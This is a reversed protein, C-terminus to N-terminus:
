KQSNKTERTSHMHFFFIRKERWFDCWNSNYQFHLSVYFNFKFGTFLKQHLIQFFLQFNHIKGERESAEIVKEAHSIFTSWQSINMEILPNVITVAMRMTGNIQHLMSTIWKVNLLRAVSNEIKKKNRREGCGLLLVLILMFQICCIYAYLFFVVVYQTSNSATSTSACWIVCFLIYSFFVMMGNYKYKTSQVIFFFLRWFRECINSKEFTNWLSYPEDNDRSRSSNENYFTLKTGKRFCLNERMWM